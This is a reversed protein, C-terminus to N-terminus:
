NAAAATAQIRRQQVDCSACINLTIPDETPTVSPQVPEQQMGQVSQACGSCAFCFLLVCLYRRLNVLRRM